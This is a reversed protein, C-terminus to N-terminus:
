KRRISRISNGALFYLKLSLIFIQQDKRRPHELIDIYKREIIIEVIEDIDIERESKLIIAKNNDYIIM